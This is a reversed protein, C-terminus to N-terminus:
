GCVQLIKEIAEAAVAGVARRFTKEALKAKLLAVAEEDCKQAAKPLEPVESVILPKTSVVYITNSNVEVGAPLQIVWRYIRGKIHKKYPTTQPLEQAM